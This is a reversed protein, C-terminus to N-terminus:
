KTYILYLEHLKKKNKSPYELKKLSKVEIQRVRERTVNMIRGVERLTRFKKNVYDYRLTMAQYERTNLNGKLFEDVKELMIKKFAKDKPSAQKSEILDALDKGDLDKLPANISTISRKQLGMLYITRGRTMNTEKVLEDVTAERGTKKYIKAQHALLRRMKERTNVPIRIQISQNDIARTIKQRIWWVAYTSFRFGRDPDFKEVAKMLGINGEEILDMLEVGSNVYNKAYSVVLRLNSNILRKRAKTAVGGKNDGKIQYALKREEKGTLLNYKRIQKLYIQIPNESFENKEDNLKKLSGKSRMEKIVNMELDDVEIGIKSLSHKTSNYHTKVTMIEKNIIMEKEPNKFRKRCLKVLYDRAKHIIELDGSYKEPHETVYDILQAM